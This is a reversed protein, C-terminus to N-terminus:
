AIQVYIQYVVFSHVHWQLDVVVFVTREEYVVNRGARANMIQVASVTSDLHRITRDLDVHLRRHVQGFDFDIAELRTLRKLLISNAM